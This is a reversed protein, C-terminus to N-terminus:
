LQRQYCVIDLINGFKEGLGKFHACKEYGNKEFLRVSGLNDGSIVAVFTHIGVARADAELKELILSGFGHNTFEPKLYLTVEGSRYYAQRKKYEVFYCYGVVQNDSYVLYSKYRPHGVYIAAQLDELSIPETYWSATTNLIYYDVIEKIIPFDYVTLDKFILANDM